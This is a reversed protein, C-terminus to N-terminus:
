AADDPPPPADPEAVVQLTAAAAGQLVVKGAHPFSATVRDAEASQVQGTGWDPRAPLRVFHGPQLVGRVAANKGKGGRRIRCTL